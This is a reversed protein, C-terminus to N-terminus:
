GQARIRALDSLWSDIRARNVGLDSRGFRLRAHIVLTDGEQRITTYDPFGMIKSRTIYTIMGEDVSGALVSTRPTARAIADIQALAGAAHPVVRMVGGTLDRNQPVEPAVHWTAPDSPALRIFGMGVVVLALLVWLFTM